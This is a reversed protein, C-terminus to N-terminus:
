HRETVPEIPGAVDAPTGKTGVAHRPDATGAATAASHRVERTGRSRAHVSVSAETAVRAQARAANGGATHGSERASGHQHCSARHSAGADESAGSAHRRRRPDIRHQRRASPADPPRGPTGCGTGVPPSAAPACRGGRHPHSPTAATVTRTTRNGGTGGAVAGHSRNANTSPRHPGAAARVDRSGLGRDSVVRRRLRQDSARSRPAGNLGGRVRARPGRTDGDREGDGSDGGHGDRRLVTCRGAPARRLCAAPAPTGSHTHVAHPRHAGACRWHDVGPHTPPRARAAARSPARRLGRRHPCRERHCDAPRVAPDPLAPPAYLLVLLRARPRPCMGPYQDM